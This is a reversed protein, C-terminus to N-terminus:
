AIQSFFLSFSCEDTGPTESVNIGLWLSNSVHTLEEMVPRPIQAAVTMQWKAQSYCCDRCPPPAQNHQRPQAQLAGQERLVHLKSVYAFFSLVALTGQNHSQLRHKGIDWDWGQCEAVVTIPLGGRSETMIFYLYCGDAPYGIRLTCHRAFYKPLHLFSLPLQCRLLERIWHKDPLYVRSLFTCLIRPKSLTTNRCCSDTQGNSGDKIRVALASGAPGNLRRGIERRGWAVSM